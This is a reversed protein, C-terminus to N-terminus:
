NALAAMLLTGCGSHNLWLFKNDWNQLASIQSWTDGPNIGASSHCLIQEQNHIVTKMNVHHEGQKYIQRKIEGKRLDSIM